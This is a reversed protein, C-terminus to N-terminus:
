TKDGPKQYAGPLRMEQQVRGPFIQVCRNNLNSVRRGAVPNSFKVVSKALKRLHRDQTM